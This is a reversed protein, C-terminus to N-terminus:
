LELNFAKALAKATTDSERAGCMFAAVTSKSVGIMRAIDRNTLKREWRIKAVEAKLGEYLYEGGKQDNHSSSKKASQQYSQSVRRSHLLFLHHVTSTIKLEMIRIELQTGPLM